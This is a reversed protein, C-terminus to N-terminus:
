KVHKLIQDWLDTIKKLPYEIYSTLKDISGMETWLYFAGFALLILVVLIAILRSHSRRKKAEMRESKLTVVKAKEESLPKEPVMPEGKEQSTKRDLPLSEEKKLPPSIGTEKQGPEVFAGQQKAISKSEEIGREKKVPPASISFVHQCRSCRVKAGKAPIRSDELKFNTLCSPCTIIM